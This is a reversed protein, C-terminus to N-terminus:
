VSEAMRRLQFAFRYFCVRVCTEKLVASNAAIVRLTINASDARHLTNTVYGDADVQINPNDSSWEITANKYVAIRYLRLSAKKYRQLLGVRVSQMEPSQNHANVICLVTCNSYPIYPHSENEPDSQTDSIDDPQAASEEANLALQQYKTASFMTHEMGYENTFPVRDFGEIQALDYSGSFAGGDISQVSDPIRLTSLKTERFACAGIDELGQPLEIECLLTNEFACADVRKLTSPLRIQEMACGSFALERLVTVGEPLIIERPGYEPVGDSSHWFAQRGIVKVGEPVTFSDEQRAGPYRLLIRGDKSYLVGGEAKFYPNDADVTYAQVRDFHVNQTWDDYPVCLPYDSDQASIHITVPRKSQTKRDASEEAGCGYGSIENYKRITKKPLGSSYFPDYEFRVDTGAFHVSKLASCGAFAYTGVFQLSRPFVVATVARGVPDCGESYSSFAYAAIDTVGQPLICIGAYDEAARILHSGCLLLGNKYLSQDRLFATGSFADNGIEITQNGDFKVERLATCAAFANSGIVAVNKPIRIKTLKDCHAFASACISKLSDPLHVECLEACGSFMAAGVNTVGEELIVKRIKGRLKRVGWPTDTAFFDGEYHICSSMEGKGRVTLTSNGPTFLWILDDGFHGQMTEEGAMAPCVTLALTVLTM